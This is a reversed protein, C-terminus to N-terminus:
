TSIAVPSSYQIEPILFRPDFRCQASDIVTRTSRSATSSYRRRLVTRATVDRSPADEEAPRPLYDRSGGGRPDERRRRTRDCGRDARARVRGDSAPAREAARRGRAGGAATRLASGGDARCRAGRTVGRAGAREGAGARQRSVSLGGAAGVGRRETSRSAEEAAGRSSAPPAARAGPHGGRARPATPPPDPVCAAPLLPGRPLPGGEGGRGPQPEDRRH